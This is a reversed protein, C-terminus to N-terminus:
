TLNYQYGQVNLADYPYLLMELLTFMKQFQKHSSVLQKCKLIKKSIQPIGKVKRCPNTMVFVLLNGKSFFGTPNEHNLMSLYMNYSSYINPLSLAVRQYLLGKNQYDQINRKLLVVKSGKKTFIYFSNITGIFFSSM